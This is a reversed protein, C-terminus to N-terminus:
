RTRGADSGAAGPQPATARTQSLAAHPRAPRHVFFPRAAIWSVVATATVVAITKWWLSGDSPDPVVATTSPVRLGALSSSITRAEELAALLLKKLDDASAPRRAADRALCQMILAELDDPLDSRYHHLPSPDETLKRQWVNQVNSGEIPSHGGSLMFYLLGGVAYIDARFDVVGGGGIQEPAMFRPTGVAADPVTLNPGGEDRLFKAVGFDLVKVLDGQEDSPRVLMVNSPKLDRHIIGARHAAELARCM